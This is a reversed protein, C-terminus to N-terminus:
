LSNSDRERAEEEEERENGEGRKKKEWIPPVQDLPSTREHWMYLWWKTAQIEKDM